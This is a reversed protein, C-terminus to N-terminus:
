RSTEAGAPPAAGAAVLEMAREIPIHAVTHAADSWGYADLRARQAALRAPQKKEDLLTQRVGSVEIPGLPVVARPGTTNIRAARPHRPAVPQVLIWAGVISGLVIAILALIIAIAPLAAVHDPEQRWHSTTTETM